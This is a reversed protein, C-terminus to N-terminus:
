HKKGVISIVYWLKYLLLKLKRTNKRLGCLIANWLKKNTNNTNGENEPRVPKLRLYNEM